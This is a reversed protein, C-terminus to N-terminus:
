WAQESVDALRKLDAATSMVARMLKGPGGVEVTLVVLVMTANLYQEPCSDHRHYRRSERITKYRIGFVVERFRLSVLSLTWLRL